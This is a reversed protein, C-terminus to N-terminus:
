NGLFRMFDKLNIKGNKKLTRCLYNSIDSGFHKTIKERFIKCSVYIDPIELFTYTKTNDIYDYSNINAGTAVLIEKIFSGNM